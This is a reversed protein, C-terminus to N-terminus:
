NLYLLIYDDMNKRLDYKSIHQKQKNFISELDSRSLDDLTEILNDLNNNKFYVGSEELVDKFAEIDSSVAICRDRICM